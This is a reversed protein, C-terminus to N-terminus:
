LWDQYYANRDIFQTNRLTFPNIFFSYITHGKNGREDM